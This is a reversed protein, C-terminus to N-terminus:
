AIPRRKRYVTKKGKATDIVRSAALGRSVLGDLIWRVRNDRIRQVKPNPDTDDGYLTSSVTYVTKEYTTSLINYVRAEADFKFEPRM